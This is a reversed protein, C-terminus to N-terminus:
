SHFEPKNPKNGFIKVRGGKEFSKKTIKVNNRYKVTLTALMEKEHITSCTNVYTILMVLVFEIFM